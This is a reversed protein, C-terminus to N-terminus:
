DRGALLADGIRWVQVLMPSQLNTSEGGRAQWWVYASDFTMQGPYYAAMDFVLGSLALLWPLVKDMPTGADARCFAYGFKEESFKSKPVPREERKLFRHLCSVEVQSDGGFDSVVDTGILEPSAKGSM